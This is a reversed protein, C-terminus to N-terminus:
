RGTLLDGFRWLGDLGLVAQVVDGVEEVFTETQVDGNQAARFCSGAVSAMRRASPSM